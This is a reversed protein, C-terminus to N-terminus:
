AEEGKKIGRYADGTNQSNNHDFGKVYFINDFKKNILAFNICLAFVREMTGAYILKNYLIMQWIHAHISEVFKMMDLFFPTPLIFTHLLALPLQAIEKLTHNTNYYTNYHKVFHKEWVEPPIPNFLHFIHYPFMIFCYNDKEKTLILCNRIPEAMISIDYQGFGVYKSKILDKNWYLHFFCSNQYSKNRQQEPDYKRLKYEEILCEKPLWDPIEKPIEENAAYWRFWSQIEEQTFEETNRAFLLKHFIIYFTLPPPEM